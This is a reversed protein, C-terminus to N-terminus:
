IGYFQISGDGNRDMAKMLVDVEDDVCALDLSQLVNKLEESSIEGSGDADFLDFADKLESFPM